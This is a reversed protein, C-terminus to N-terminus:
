KVTEVRINESEGIGPDLSIIPSDRTRELSEPVLDSEFGKAQLPRRHHEEVSHSIRGVRKHTPPTPKIADAQPDNVGLLSQKEPLIAASLNRRM